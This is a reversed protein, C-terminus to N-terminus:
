MGFKLTSSLLFPHMWGIAEFVSLFTFRNLMEKAQKLDATTYNKSKHISFMSPDPFKHLRPFKFSSMGTM